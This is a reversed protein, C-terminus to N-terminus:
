ELLERFLQDAQEPSDTFPLLKAAKLKEEVKDNGKAIKFERIVGLLIQSYSEAALRFAIGCMTMFAEKQLNVIGTL